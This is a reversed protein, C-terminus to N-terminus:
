VVPFCVSLTNRPFGSKNGCYYINNNRVTIYNVKHDVRNMYMEGMKM